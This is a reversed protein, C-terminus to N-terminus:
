KGFWNEVDKYEPLIEPTRDMNKPRTEKTPWGNAVVDDFVRKYINALHVIQGFEYQKGRLGWFNKRHQPEFDNEVMAREEDTFETAIRKAGGSEVRTMGLNPVNHSAFLNDVYSRLQGPDEYILSLDFGMEKLFEFLFEHDKESDKLLHVSQNKIDPILLSKKHAGGLDIAPILILKKTPTASDRHRENVRAVNIHQGSFTKAFDANELNTTELEAM